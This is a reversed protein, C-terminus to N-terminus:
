ASSRLCPLEQDRHGALSITVVVGHNLREELGQFGLEDPTGDEVGALFGVLGNAAVRCRRPDRWGFGPIKNTDNPHAALYQDGLEAIEAQTLVFFQDPERETGRDALKSLYVLVYYPNPFPAKPKVLWANKASLGKVDVWFQRGSPAGVMLDANPTHNGMRFSITYGRRVLESAVLFQAAWQTRQRKETASLPRATDIVSPNDDAYSM